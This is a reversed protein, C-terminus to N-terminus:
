NQCLWKAGVLVGRDRVIEKITGGAFSDGVGFSSFSGDDNRIWVQGDTIAQTKCQFAPAAPASVAVAKPTSRVMPARHVPVQRAELVIRSVPGRPLTRSSDQGAAHARAAASGAVFIFDDRDSAARVSAKSRAHHVSSGKKGSSVKGSAETSKSSLPKSGFVKGTLRDVDSRLSSMGTELKSVRADIPALVDQFQSLANNAPAAEELVSKGHDVPSPNTLGHDGPLAGIASPATLPAAAASGSSAPALQAADTVASLAAVPNGAAPAVATITPPSPLGPPTATPLASPTGLVQATSSLNTSPHAPVDAVPQTDAPVIAPSVGPHDLAPHGLANLADAPSPALATPAAGPMTGPASLPAPAAPLVPQALHDPQTADQGMPLGTIPNIAAGPAAPLAPVGQTMANQSANQGLVGPGLADPHGAPLASASHSPEVAQSVAASIPRKHSIQPAPKFLVYGAGAVLLVMAGGFAYLLKSSGKKKVSAAVPDGFGSANFGSAAGSRSVGQEDDDHFGTPTAFDEPTNGSM